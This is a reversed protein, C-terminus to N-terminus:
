QKNMIPQISPNPDYSDFSGLVTTPTLLHGITRALTMTSDPFFTNRPDLSLSFGGTQPTTSSTFRMPYNNYPYYSGGRRSKNKKTKRSKGRKKKYRFSKGM